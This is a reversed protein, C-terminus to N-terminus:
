PVMHHHMVVATEETTNNQQRFRSKNEAHLLMCVYKLLMGVQWCTGHCTGHTHMHPLHMALGEILQLMCITSNVQGPSGVAGRAALWGYENM